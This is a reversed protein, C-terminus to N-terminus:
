ETCIAKVWLHTVLMPPGGFSKAMLLIKPLISDSLVRKSPLFIAFIKVCACRLLACVNEVFVCAFIGM